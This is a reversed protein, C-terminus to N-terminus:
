QPHLLKSAFRISFPFGSNDPISLNAVWGPFTSLISHDHSLSKWSWVVTERFGTREELVTPEWKCLQLHGLIFGQTACALQWRFLWLSSPLLKQWEGPPFDKFFLPVPDSLWPNRGYSLQPLLLSSFDMPTSSPWSWKRPMEGWNSMVWVLRPFTISIRHVPPTGM